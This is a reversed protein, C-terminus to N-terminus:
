PLSPLLAVTIFWTQACRGSGPTTALSSARQLSGLLTVTIFLTVFALRIRQM